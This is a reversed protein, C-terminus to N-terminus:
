AQTMKAVEAALDDVKKEIGEGVEYRVFAKVKIDKGIEKATKEVYQQVSLDGDMVFAQEMLCTEKLEKKLRGAVMKEVINQPKGENLAQQVLIEKEKELYEPDVQTEDVFQPNMSCVQMAVNRGMAQIEDAKAATEFQVIVGIKGNHSYGVCVTGAEDFKAFRRITMNEGIKAIKATLVDKVTGDEMPCAELAAVDAVDNALVIGAFGDVMDVFEQNKAVFDTEANVEILAGKKGDASFALKVMGEAAVRGSKKAAKSLGKERLYDIAKEMDGATETLAKKCDMMGCGTRERLEKVLAATINSM